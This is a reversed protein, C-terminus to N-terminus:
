KQLECSSLIEPNSEEFKRLKWRNRYLSFDHLMCKPLKCSLLLIKEFKETKIELNEWRLSAIAEVNSEM